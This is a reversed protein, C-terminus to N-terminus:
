GQGESSDTKDTKCIAREMEGFIVPPRSGRATEFYLGCFRSAPGVSPCDATQRKSFATGLSVCVGQRFNGRRFQPLFAQFGGLNRRKGEKGTLFNKRLGPGEGLQYLKKNVCVADDGFHSNNMESGIIIRHDIRTLANKTPQKLFFVKEIETQNQRPAGIFKICIEMKQYKIRSLLGACSRDAAFPAPPYIGRRM